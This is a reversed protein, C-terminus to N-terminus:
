LRLVPCFNWQLIIYLSHIILYRAPVQAESDQKSFHTNCPIFSCYPQSIETIKKKEHCFSCTLGPKEHVLPKVTIVRFATTNSQTKHRHRKWKIFVPFETANACMQRDYWSPGLSICDDTAAGELGFGYLM